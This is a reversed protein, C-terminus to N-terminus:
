AQPGPEVRGLPAEESRVPVGDGSGIIAAMGHRLGDACRVAEHEIPLAGQSQEGILEM